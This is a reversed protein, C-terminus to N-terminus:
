LTAIHCKRCLQKSRWGDWAGWSAPHNPYDAPGDGSGTDWHWQQRVNPDFQAASAPYGRERLWQTMPAEVEKGCVQCATISITDTM